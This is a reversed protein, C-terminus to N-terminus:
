AVRKEETLPLAQEKIPYVVACQNELDKWITNLKKLQKTTLNDLILIDESNLNFGAESWNASGTILVRNDIIAFKHHLRHRTVKAQLTLSSNKLAEIQRIALKKFDKDVLIQVNVGRKQAANLELFIPPYTLAFMAVRITKKATKLTQLITSLAQRQDGPLSFYQANQKHIKFEGSSEKKIHQCLESSKLGIILNSDQILSPHTYNASGLWAYTNDIALAKQHMLKRVKAPHEVLTVKSTHPFDTVGTMKEYHITIPLNAKAQNAFSTYIEPSTLRYIRLFIDYKASDIADCLVKLPEDNCQKSYIVPESSSLFTQFTDAPPSKLFIGLIFLSGATVAIKIRAYAKNKM